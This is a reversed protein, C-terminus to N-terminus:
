KKVLRETFFTVSLDWAQLQALAHPQIQGGYWCRVHPPLFPHKASNCVPCNPLDILHGTSEFEVLQCDERGNQAARQFSFKALERLDEDEEGVLGLVPASGKEFLIQREPRSQLEQAGGEIRIPVATGIPMEKLVEETWGWVASQIVQDKYKMVGPCLGCCSAGQVCVAAVKSGFLQSMALAVNGGQSIGQLGAGNDGCVEERALVWDLAKEFYELDLDFYMKPLHDVGFFALALTVFGKSALLAARDEPVSGRNVGGFITIIAPAPTIKPLFLTGVLGEERVEIRRVGESLYSRTASTSALTEKGTNESIAFEYQLPKTIDIPWLRSVCGPEASMSWLPGGSHVGVYSGSVPEQQKTDITGDCSTLYRNRSSFHIKDEKRRLDGRLEVITQPPLGKGVIHVQDDLLGTKPTIVLQPSTSNFRILPNIVFSLSAQCRRFLPLSLLAPM